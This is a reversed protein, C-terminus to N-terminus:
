SRQLMETAFDAAADHIRICEQDTNTPPDHKNHYRHTTVSQKARCYRTITLVDGSLFAAVLYRYKEQLRAVMRRHLFAEWELLSTAFFRWIRKSPGESTDYALGM